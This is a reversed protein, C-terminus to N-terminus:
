RVRKGKLSTLCSPLIWLLFLLFPILKALFYMISFGVIPDNELNTWTIFTDSIVQLIPAIYYRWDDFIFWTKRNNTSPFTQYCLPKHYMYLPCHQLVYSDINQHIMGSCEKL